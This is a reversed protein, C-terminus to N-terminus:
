QNTFRGNAYGTALHETNTQVNGDSDIFASDTNAVTVKNDSDIYDLIIENRDSNSNTFVNIGFQRELFDQGEIFSSNRRHAPNKMARMTFWCTEQFRDKPLMFTTIRDSGDVMPSALLQELDHQGSTNAKLIETKDNRELAKAKGHVYRPCWKDIEKVGGDPNTNPDYGGPMGDTGSPQTSPAGETYVRGTDRNLKFGAEAFLTRERTSGTFYITGVQSSSTNGQFRYPVNPALSVSGKLIVQNNGAMGGAVVEIDNAASYAEATGSWITTTDTYSGPNGSSISRELRTGSSRTVSGTFDYNTGEISAEGSESVGHPGDYWYTISHSPNTAAPTGGPGAPSGPSGIRRQYVTNITGSQRRLIGGKKDIGDYTVINVSSTIASPGCQAAFLEVTFVTSNSVEAVNWLGNIANNSAGSIYVRNYQDTLGHTGSTTITVSRGQGATWSATGTTSVIENGTSIIAETDPRIEFLISGTHVNTVSTGYHYTGGVTYNESIRSEAGSQWGPSGTGYGVISYLTVTPGTTDGFYSSFTGGLSAPTTYGSTNGVAPTYSSPTASTGYVGTGNTPVSMPTIEYSHQSEINATAGCLYVGPSDGPGPSLTTYNAPYPSRGTGAFDTYMVTTAPSVGSSFPLLEYVGGELSIHGRDSYTYTYYAPVAPSGPGSSSPSVEAQAPTYSRDVDNFRAFYTGGINVGDTNTLDAPAKRSITVLDNKLIHPETISAEIPSGGPSPSPSSELPAGWTIHPQAM